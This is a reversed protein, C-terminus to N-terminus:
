RVAKWSCYFPPESVVAAGGNQPEETDHLNFERLDERFLALGALQGPLPLQWWSVDHKGAEDFAKRRAKRAVDTTAESAKSAAGRTIDGPKYPVSQEGGRALLV